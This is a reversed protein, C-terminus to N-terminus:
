KLNENVLWLFVKAEYPFGQDTIGADRYRGEFANGAAEIYEEFLFFKENPAVGQGCTILRVDHDEELIDIGGVKLSLTSGYELLPNPLAVFIGRIRKYAKDTAGTFRVSVGPTPVGIRILQFKHNKM